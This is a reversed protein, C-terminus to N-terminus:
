IGRRAPDANIAPELHGPNPYQNTELIVPLYRGNRAPNRFSLASHTPPTHTAKLPCLRRRSSSVHRHIPNAVNVNHAKCFRCSLCDETNLRTPQETKEVLKCHNALCSVLLETPNYRTRAKPPVGTTPRSSLLPIRHLDPVAGGSYGPVFAAFVVSGGPPDPLATLLSKARSDSSRGFANNKALSGEHSPALSGHLAIQKNKLM